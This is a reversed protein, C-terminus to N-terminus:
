HKPQVNQQFWLVALLTPTSVPIETETLFFLEPAEEIPWYVVEISEGELANGGGAKPVIDADGVEAYFITSFTGSLGVSGRCHFLFVYKFQIDYSASCM